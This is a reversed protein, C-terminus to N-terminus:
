DAFLANSYNIIKRRSVGEEQWDTMKEKLVNQLKKETDIVHKFQILFRMLKHFAKIRSYKSQFTFVYQCHYKAKNLFFRKEKLEFEKKKCSWIEKHTSSLNLRTTDDCFDCINLLADLYLHAM